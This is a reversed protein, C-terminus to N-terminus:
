LEPPTPRKVGGILSRYSSSPSFSKISSLLRKFSDSLPLFARKERKILTNEWIVFWFCPECVVYGCGDSCRFYAERVRIVRGCEVCKLDCV